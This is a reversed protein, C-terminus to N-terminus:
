LGGRLEGANCWGAACVAAVPGLHAPGPAPEGGRDASAWRAPRTGAM